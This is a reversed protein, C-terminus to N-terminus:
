SLFTRIYQRDSIKLITDVTVKTKPDTQLELLTDFNTLHTVCRGNWFCAMDEFEWHYGGSEGMDVVGWGYGEDWRYWGWEYWGNVVGDM